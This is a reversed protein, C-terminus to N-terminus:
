KDELPPIDPSHFIIHDLKKHMADRHAIHKRWEKVVKPAALVALVASAVLNPGVRSADPPWFDLYIVHWLWHM